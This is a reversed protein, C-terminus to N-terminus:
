DPTKLGRTKTAKLRQKAPTSMAISLKAAVGGVPMVLRDALEGPPEGKKSLGAPWNFPFAFSATGLMGKARAAARQAITVEGLGLPACYLRRLPTVHM